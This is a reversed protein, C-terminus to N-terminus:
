EEASLVRELLELEEVCEHCVELHQKLVAFKPAESASDQAKAEVYAALRHMVEECDIEEPATNVVLDLLLDLKENSNM